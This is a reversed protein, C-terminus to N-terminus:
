LLFLPVPLEEKYGNLGAESWLTSDWGHQRRAEMGFGREPESVCATTLSQPGGTDGRELLLSTM